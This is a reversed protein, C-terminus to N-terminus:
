KDTAGTESFYLDMTNVAKDTLEILVARTDTPHSRRELFGQAELYDLWRLTTTPATTVTESIRSITQASLSFEGYLTLLIEWGAEAFMTNGFIGIRRRRSALEQRARKIYEIRIALGTLQPSMSARSAGLRNIIELAHELKEDSLPSRKASGPSRM